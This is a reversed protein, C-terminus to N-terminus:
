KTGKNSVEIVKFLGRGFVDELVIMKNFFMDRRVTLQNIEDTIEQYSELTRVSQNILELKEKILTQQYNYGRDCNRYEEKAKELYNQMNNEKM